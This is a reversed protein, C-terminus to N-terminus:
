RVGGVERVFELQGELLQEACRAYAWGPGNDTSYMGRCMGKLRITTTGDAAMQRVAWFYAIGFEHPMRTAITDDTSTEIPTPSHREVFLRARGWAEVCADPTACKIASQERSAELETESRRFGDNEDGHTVCAGLLAISLIPVLSRGSSLRISM